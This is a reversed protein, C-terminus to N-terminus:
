NFSLSLGPTRKILDNFTKLNFTGTPYACWIGAELGDLGKVYDAVFSIDAAGRRGPDYAAVEGFGLAESVDSLQKLLAKNEKTPGMAPYSDTFTITANTSPLHRSCYGMKARANEKNKLSLACVM